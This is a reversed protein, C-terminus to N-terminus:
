FFKFSVNYGFLVNKQTEDAQLKLYIRGKPLSNLKVEDQKEIVFNDINRFSEDFVNVTIKPFQHKTKTFILDVSNSSDVEFYLWDVNNMVSKNGVLSYHFTHTQIENALIKTAMSMADDPEYIDYNFIQNEITKKWHKANRKISVTYLMVAKQQRTFTTRCHTYSLYSMINNTAPVYLDGWDDRLDKEKYRCKNDVKGSLVPEAPTDYLYDGRTECLRKNTLKNEITRSVPEQYLIGRDWNRHPHMLGLFHGIEHALTTKSSHRILIISNSLSNYTGKYFTEYNFFTKELVNVYYVNMSNKNHQKRGVFFNETIYNVKLKNSDSIYCIDSIYFQIGTRNDAYIKNLNQIAIKITSNLFSKNERKNLYIHLSIPIQYYVIGNDIGPYDNLVTELFANNGKWPHKKKILKNQGEIVLSLFLLIIFFIYRM